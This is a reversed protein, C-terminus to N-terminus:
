LPAISTPNSAFHLLKKIKWFIAAKAIGDNECKKWKRVESIAGVGNSLRNLLHTM